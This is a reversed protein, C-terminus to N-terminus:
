LGGFTIRLSHPQDQNINVLILTKPLFFTTGGVFFLHLKVGKAGWLPSREVVAAKKQGLIAM